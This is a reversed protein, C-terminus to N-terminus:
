GTAASRPPIHLRSLLASVLAAIEPPLSAPPLIPPGPTGGGSASGFAPTVNETTTVTFTMGTKATIRWHTSDPHSAIFPGDGPAAQVSVTDGPGGSGSTDTGGDGTE